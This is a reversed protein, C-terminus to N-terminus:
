KRPHNERIRAILTSQIETRNTASTIRLLRACDDKFQKNESRHIVKEISKGIANFHSHVDQRFLKQSNRKDDDTHYNTSAGSAM